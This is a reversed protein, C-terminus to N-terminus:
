LEIIKSDPFFSIWAFWYCPIIFASKNNLEENCKDFYVEFKDKQYDINNIKSKSKGIIATYKFENNSKYQIGYILTKPHYKDFNKINKINKDPYILKKNSLYDNNVIPNLKKNIKLFLCDPYLTLANRLSMIKIEIRRIIKDIIKNENLSYYNGSLHMIFGNPNNNNYKKLLISNKYIKDYMEFKGFYGCVSSTFPCYAITIDYLKNEEYYLDHIIPYSRIIDLSIIKNDRGDSFAIVTDFLSLNLPPESNYTLKNLIDNKNNNDIFDIM